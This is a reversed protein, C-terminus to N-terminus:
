KLAHLPIPESTNFLFSVSFSQFSQGLRQKGSVISHMTIESLQPSQEFNHLMTALRATSEGIGDLEIKQGQMQIKDIYVGQPILEVLLHMFETTKNRKQQLTELMTLRTSLVQYEQEITDLRSLREDLQVVHRKLLALRERQLHQQQAFYQGALGQGILALLGGGIVLRLFGQRYAKRQAERWPLLNVPYLM